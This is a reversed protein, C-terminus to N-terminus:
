SFVFDQCFREYIDMNLSTDRDLRISGSNKNATKKVVVMIQVKGISYFQNMKRSRLFSSTIFISMFDM